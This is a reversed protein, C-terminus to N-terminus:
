FFRIQERTTLARNMAGGISEQNALPDLAALPGFDIGADMEIEHIPVQAAVGLRSSTFDGFVFEEQPLPPLSLRQDMRYGTASLKGTDDHVFAIVKWFGVPVAIGYYMPDDGRFFPGTFVSIKMGDRKANDLAYDELELWIPANFSQMQPTANTVHMSDRNGQTATDADGWGPDNRRTMHGRSFKPARGYPASMIQQEKPIRGDWKWGVRKAKRLQRGDINVASFFCMRRPRNMVVSFHEYALVHETQGELDFELVDRARCTVKPLPVACSGTGIFDTMYGQRDRYKEPGEIEADILDDDLDSSAAPAPAPPPAPVAAAVAGDGGLSVTITLPVTVSSAGSPLSVPTVRRTGIDALATAVVDSRVAFNTRMFAGSFHLGLAEGSRLDVVASGSNGGLTTANHLLLQARLETVAGPALRKRNYESGYIEEMLAIDPIRSDYAPYGIVAVGDSVDPAQALGIPRALGGATQSVEFFAMDPSAGDAIFLPRVLDFAETADSDFEKLFDVEAGVGPLFTFGAGRHQAFHAAVHRNTVIINEAVLWGTGVWDLSGGRLNIRGVASIADELGAAAELRPKWLIAEAEDAFELVPAHEQVKLVPRNRRMVISELGFAGATDLQSPMAETLAFAEHSTDPYSSAIQANFRRLRALAIEKSDM